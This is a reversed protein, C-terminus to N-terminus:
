ETQGLENQLRALDELAATRRAHEREAVLDLATHYGDRNHLVHRLQHNLTGIDTRTLGGSMAIMYEAQFAMDNMFGLMQRSATKALHVDDPDLQGLADAPLQEARLEAEIRQVVFPGIPRLDATRIDAILASFLTGTHALLLCKRGDFWLLNVYWDDDTEPTDALPLNRKGILQLVKQTCRVIM